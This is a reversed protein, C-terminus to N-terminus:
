SKRSTNSPIPDAEYEAIQSALENIRRTLEDVMAAHQEPSLQNSSAGSAEGTRSPFTPDSKAESPPTTDQKAADPVPMGMAKFMAEGYGLTEPDQSMLSMQEQWLALLRRTISQM